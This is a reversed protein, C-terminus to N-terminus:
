RALRETSEVAPLESVDGSRPLESRRPQPGSRPRLPDALSRDGNSIRNMATTACGYPVNELLHRASGWKFRSRSRTQAAPGSCVDGAVEVFALGPAKAERRAM